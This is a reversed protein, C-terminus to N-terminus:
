THHFQIVFLIALYFKLMFLYIPKEAEAKYYSKSSFCLALTESFSRVFAKSLIKLQWYYKKLHNM